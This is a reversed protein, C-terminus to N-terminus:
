QKAPKAPDLIFGSRVLQPVDKTFVKTMQGPLVRRVPSAVLTEEVVANGNIDKGRFVKSVQLGGPVPETLSRGPAVTVETMEPKKKDAESATQNDAM